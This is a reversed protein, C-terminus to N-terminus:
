AGVNWGEMVWEGNVFSFVAIAANPCRLHHRNFGMGLVLDAMCRLVGEHAFAVACECPDEELMKLFARVRKRVMDHNEGGFATFDAGTPVVWFRPGYRMEMEAVSHDQLSGVNNERLLPLQLPECGPIATQATQIARRLDSSYVRDFSLKKLYEGARRADEFGKETLSIQAWGSFRHNANSESQGHRVLYLKM